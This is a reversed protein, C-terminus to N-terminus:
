DKIFPLRAQSYIPQKLHEKLNKFSELPGKTVFMNILWTPLSGAPDTFLTYEVKVSRPGNPTAVWKGVGQQIRVIGPKEPVMGPLNDADVTVVKTTANQHVVLHAVFDRDTAPWPLNIDSYYYLELPSVQKILECSKTSYVWDKSGRVDMIVFAFQSLTVELTCEVKIAKLKSSPADKVYVKIGDKDTKLEWDTQAYTITALLFLIPILLLKKLM